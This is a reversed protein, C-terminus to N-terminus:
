QVVVTATPNLIWGITSDTRTITISISVIGNNNTINNIVATYKESALTNGVVKVSLPTLTAISALAPIPINYTNNYPNSSTTGVQFLIAYTQPTNNNTNNTDNTNNTNNNINTNNYHRRSSYYIIVVIIIIIIVIYKTDM